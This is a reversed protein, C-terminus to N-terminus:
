PAPTPAHRAVCCRRHVAPGTRAQGRRGIGGSRIVEAPPRPAESPTGPRRWPGPRTLHRSSAGSDPAAPRRVARRAPRGSARPPPRRPRDEAAGSRPGPPSGCGPESPRPQRAPLRAPPADDPPVPQRPSRPRRRRSGSGIRRRGCRAPAHDSNARHRARDRASPPPSSRRRSLPSLGAQPTPCGGRCSPEVARLPSGGRVSEGPDATSPGGSVGGGSDAASGSSPKATGGLLQDAHGTDRHPRVAFLRASRVATSEALGTRLCTM